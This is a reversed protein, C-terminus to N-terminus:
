EWDGFTKVQSVSIKNASEAVAAKVQARQRLLWNRTSRPAYRRIWNTALLEDGTVLANAYYGLANMRRLIEAMDDTKRRAAWLENRYETAQQRSRQPFRRTQDVYRRGNWGVIMTMWPTAAYPNGGFYALADNALIIEKYGDGNLDKEGNVGGNAGEMILLNRVAGGDHTFYYDTVCCHAGGSTASLHLEPAGRGNMEVFDLVLIRDARVEKMLIGQADSVRANEPAYEGRAQDAKKGVSLTYPGWAGTWPVRGMEFKPASSASMAPPAALALLASVAFAAM